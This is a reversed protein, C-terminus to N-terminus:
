LDTLVHKRALKRGLKVAEVGILMAGDFRPVSV